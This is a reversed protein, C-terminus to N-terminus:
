HFVRRAISTLDILFALEGDVYTQATGLQIYVTGDDRFTVQMLERGTRADRIEELDPWPSSYAAQRIRRTADFADAAFKQLGTVDVRFNRALVELIAAKFLERADYRRHRGTGGHLEDVPELLRLTTWNRLQRTIAAVEEASGSRAIRAAMQGVTFTADTTM